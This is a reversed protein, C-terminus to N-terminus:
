NPIGLRQRISLLQQRLAEKLERNEIKTANYIDTIKNITPIAGQGLNVIANLARGMLPGNIDVITRIFDVSRIDVTPYSTKIINAFAMTTNLYIEYDKLEKTAFVWQGSPDLNKIRNITQELTILVRQQCDFISLTQNSLCEKTKGIMVAKGTETIIEYNNIMIEETVQELHLCANRIQPIANEVDNAINGKCIDQANNTSYGVSNALEVIEEEIQSKGSTLETINTQADVIQQRVNQNEFLNIYQQADQNLLRLLDTTSTWSSRSINLPAV